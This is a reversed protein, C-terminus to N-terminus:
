PCVLPTGDLTIAVDDMYIEYPSTQEDSAYTIGVGIAALGAPFRTDAAGSVRADDFTLELLGPTGMAVHFVVCTWADTPFPETGFYLGALSDYIAWGGDNVVLSHNYFTPATGDNLVALAVNQPQAAAPVYAWFRMYVDDPDEDITLGLQHDGDSADAIHFWGSADGTSARTTSRADATAWSWPPVRNAVDSEFDDCLTAEGPCPDFAPPADIPADVGGDSGADDMPADLGPADGVDLEPADRGADLTSADLEGERM